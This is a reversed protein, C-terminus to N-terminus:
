MYINAGSDVLFRVMATSGSLAACHLPTNGDVDALDVRAGGSQLILACATRNNLAAAHMATTADHARADLDM